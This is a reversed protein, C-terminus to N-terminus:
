LGGDISGEDHYPERRADPPLTALIEQMREFLLARQYDNWNGIELIRELFDAANRPEHLKDCYLHVVEHVALIDERNEEIRAEYEGIAALYDGAAVKALASAHPHREEEEPSYLFSGIFDGIMPLYWIAVLAALGAGVLVIGAYCAVLKSNDPNDGMQSAQAMTFLLFLVAGLAVVTLLRLLFRM